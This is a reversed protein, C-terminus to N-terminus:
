ALIIETSGGGIDAVVVNKGSLDFARQVSYFALRAEREASIVDIDIGLEEKARRCFEAGNTAERVACTAITRLEDVQFGDAIQKFRRLTALTLEVAKPDLRGTSNLSRGLRMAEREEDLIRYNGGRLPEALMLRVSNSGIDIAGLRHAVDPSLLIQKDDTLARREAAGDVPAGRVQGFETQTSAKEM